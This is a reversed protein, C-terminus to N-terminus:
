KVCFGVMDYWRQSGYPELLGGRPHLFFGAFGKAKLEGIQRELEAKELQHNLFWFSLPGKALKDLRSELSSNLESDPANEALVVIESDYEVDSVTAAKM